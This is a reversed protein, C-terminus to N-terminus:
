FIIGTEFFMTGNVTLYQAPSEPRHPERVHPDVVYCALPNDLLVIYIKEADSRETKYRRITSTLRKLLFSRTVKTGQRQCVGTIAIEARCRAVNSDLVM